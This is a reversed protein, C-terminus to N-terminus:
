SDDMEDYNRDVMFSAGGMVDLIHTNARLIPAMERISEDRRISIKGPAIYGGYKEDIGAHHVIDFHTADTASCIYLNDDQGIVFRITAATKSLQVLDRQSPNIYLRVKKVKDAAVRGRGKGMYYSEIPIIEMRENMIESCRM